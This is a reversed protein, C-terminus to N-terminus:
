QVIFETFYANRLRGHETPLIGNIESVMSEKMKQKGAPRLLEEYPQSSLINIIIDSIKDKRLDIEKGLPDLAAGGGHEGGGEAKAEEGEAAAADWELQVSCKLYHEGGAPGINVTFVLPKPLTKGIRTFEEQKKKEEEMQRSKAEVAHDPTKLRSVIFLAVGVLLLLDAALIGGIIMMKKKSGGAAPVKDGTAGIEPDKTKTKEEAM